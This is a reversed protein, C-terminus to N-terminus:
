QEQLLLFPLPNRRVQVVGRGLVDGGPKPQHM